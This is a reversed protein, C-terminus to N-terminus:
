VNGPDKLATDPYSQFKPFCVGAADGGVVSSDPGITRSYHAVIGSDISKRIMMDPVFCRVNKGEACPLTAGLRVVEIVSEQNTAGLHVGEVQWLADSIRLLDHPKIYM